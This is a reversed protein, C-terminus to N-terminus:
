KRQDKLEAMAFQVEDAKAKIYPELAKDMVMIHDLLWDSLYTIIWQKVELLSKTKVADNLEKVMLRHVDCHNKAYPYGCIKMALEERHFHDVTYEALEQILAQMKLPFDDDNEELKQGRSLITLLQRHDEDIIGNNDIAMYQSWQTIPLSSNNPTYTDISINPKDNSKLQTLLSEKITNLLKETNYPKDILPLALIKDTQSKALDDQYGSSFIIKVQPFLQQVQEALQYGNMQPMIIDTLLLHVVQKKLISLAQKGNDASVVKYGEDTLNKTLLAILSHEDDVVLITKNSTDIAEETTAINAIEGKVQHKNKAEETNKVEKTNKIEKTNCRPFYIVFKTGKDPSSYVNISGSSSNVFGYVQSLGLGTGLEGKTSFFPEFIKEKLEEQIGIGNDEVSLVVYDKPELNLEAAEEFTLSKNKTTIALQGGNPMAHKSNICLNLMMDDFAFNDIEACWLNDALNLELNIKSTISKTIIDQSKEILENIVACTEPTSRQKSFSLLKNTLEAGRRGSLTIQKAYNCLTPQEALQKELIESYGVMVGLMNNYDHAIGGTLKGLADMKQNSLMREKLEVQETIDQIVGESTIPVGKDDYDFKGHLAIHKLANNPLLLRHIAHYSDKTKIANKYTQLLREKDDPHVFSFYIKNTIKENIDLELIRYIEDSFTTENSICDFVWHGVHAIKQAEALRENSLTTEQDAIVRETVDRAVAYFIKEESFALVNWELWKFSGDLCRYRNNNTINRKGTDADGLASLTVEVDDKHVFDIFPKSIFEEKTYGLTKTIASNIETFRGDTTGKGIIDPSLEFIKKFEDEKQKKEDITQKLKISLLATSWIVFLAISRNLLVQWFEAGLPSIYFGVITLISTVFAVRLTFYKQSSFLSLIIVFIYPVGGAFGLPLFADIILISISLLGCLLTIQFNSLKNM